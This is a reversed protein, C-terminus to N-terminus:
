ISRWTGYFAHSRCDAAHIWHTSNTDTEQCVFDAPMPLHRRVCLDYNQLTEGEVGVRRERAASKDQKSIHLDSDAGAAPIHFLHWVKNFSLLTGPYPVDNTSPSCHRFNFEVM